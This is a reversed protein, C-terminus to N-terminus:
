KEGLDSLLGNHAYMRVVAEPDFAAVVDEFDPGNALPSDALVFSRAYEEDAMCRARVSLVEAAWADFTEYRERDYHLPPLRDVDLGNARAMGEPSLVPEGDFADAYAPTHLRLRVALSDHAARVWGGCIPADQLKLKDHVVGNWQHCGMVSVMLAPIPDRVSGLYAIALYHAPSWLGHPADPRFPCAKCPKM